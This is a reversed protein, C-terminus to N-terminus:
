AMKPRRKEMKFIFHEWVYVLGLGYTLIAVSAISLQYTFFPHIMTSYEFGAYVMTVFLIVNAAFFVSNARKKKLLLLAGAVLLGVSAIFQTLIHIAIFPSQAWFHTHGPRTMLYIWTGLLLTGFTISLVGAALSFTFKPKWSNKM